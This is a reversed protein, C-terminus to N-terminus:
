DAPQSRVHDLGARVKEILAKPATETRCCRNVLQKMAQEVDFHDLCPECEALHERIMDSDADPLENDLFEFMRGLVQECHRNDAHTSGEQPHEGAVSM